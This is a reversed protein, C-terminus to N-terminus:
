SENILKKGIKEVWAKVKDMDCNDEITKGMIKMRGGFAETAFPKIHPFKILINDIYKQIAEEHKKPNGATCSSPFIVVNKEEFNNKLFKLAQKYWRGMRIGSGIFINKYTTIDPSPNKMLNVLDVEFRYKIKLVEAIVNASEGTVGGKTAFAVMTKNKYINKEPANNM